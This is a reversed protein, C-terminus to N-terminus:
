LRNPEFTRSCSAPPASAVFDEGARRLEVAMERTKVEREPDDPQGRWLGIVCGGSGSFKAAHDFRHAIAVIALNNSGLAREGYLARRGAFNADMLRALRPEDREALATRAEEALSALHNMGTIVEQDGNNFRARVNNHFAGSDSPQAEYALWLGKPLLGVDLEEYEGYGRVEMLDRRFDMFVMGGYAQVVRDQLGAAIGLEDKEASLALNARTHKPIADGELGHHRILARLFATIMGSSGALGVQRPINTNWLLKFGRRRLALGNEQCHTAFVKMTALLLRSIGYYGDGACVLSAVHLSPFALPDCLPNPCLVLSEDVADANPVLVVEAWYNAILVSVTKGFFGDSPNGMLGVRAHARARIPVGATDAVLGPLPSAPRSAGVVAVRPTSRQWVAKYQEVSECAFWSWSPCVGRPIALTRINAGSVAALLGDLGGDPPPSSALYPHLRSVAASGLRLLFDGKPPPQTTAAGDPAATVLLSADPDPNVFLADVAGCASLDLYDFLLSGPLLVLSPATGLVGLSALVQLAPVLDATPEEHVNGTNYVRDLPFASALSWREVAKYNRADTVIHTGGSLGLARLNAWTWSLVPQGGVPLLAKPFTYLAALDADAAASAAIHRELAHAGTVAVVVVVGAAETTARLTTTTM